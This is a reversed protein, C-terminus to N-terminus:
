TSPNQDLFFSGQWISFKTLGLSFEQFISVERLASNRTFVLTLRLYKKVSQLEISPGKVCQGGTLKRWGTVLVAKILSFKISKLLLQIEM